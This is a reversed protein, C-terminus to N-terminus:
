GPTGNFFILLNSGTTKDAFLVHLGNKKIYILSFIDHIRIMIDDYSYSIYLYKKHNNDYPIVFIRYNYIDICRIQNYDFLVAFFEVSSVM